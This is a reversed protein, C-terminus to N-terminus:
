LSGPSLSLSAQSLIADPVRTETPTGDANPEGSVIFPITTLTSGVVSAHLMDGKDWMYKGNELHTRTENAEGLTMSATFAVKGKVEAPAVETDDKSCSGLM